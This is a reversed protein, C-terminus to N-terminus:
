SILASSFYSTLIFDVTFSYLQFFHLSTTLQELWVGGFWTMDNLANTHYTIGQRNFINKFTLINKKKINLKYSCYLLLICGFIIIWMYKYSTILRMLDCIRLFQRELGGPITANVLIQNHHVLHVCVSYM